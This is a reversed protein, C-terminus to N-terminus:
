DSAAIGVKADASVYHFFKTCAYRLNDPALKAVASMCVVPGDGVPVEQGTSIEGTREYRDDAGAFLKM